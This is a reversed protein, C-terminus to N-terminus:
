SPLRTIPRVRQGPALKQVGLQVVVEGGTLGDTVVAFETGFRVVRVARRSVTGTAPDVVFVGPGRGEDLIASLPLLTGQMAGAIGTERLSITATMGWTIGTADEPLSFRAPYTRTAPDARPSLERLKAPLARGPQAWLTAQAEGSRALAILTEPVAVEVELGEQHALRFAAQGAALVQGPEAMVTTVVGAAEARLTTHQLANRALSVAHEARVARGAAEESAARQRDMESATSWGSRRLSNIREMESNASDRAARAAALEAEAQALQLSFDEKDLEALVQGATVTQGADVLRRTVKGGVRFGIDSEVRPRVTGALRREPALSELRATAVLVTPVIEVVAKPDAASKKDDCAALALLALSALISRGTLRNM